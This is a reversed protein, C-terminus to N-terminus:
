ASDVVLCLDATVASRVDAREGAPYGARQLFGARQIRHDHPVLDVFDATAPPAIRRRRPHIHHARTAVLASASPCGMGALIPVSSTLVYRPRGRKWDSTASRVSVGPIAVPSATVPIPPSTSKM